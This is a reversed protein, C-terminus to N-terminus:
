SDFWIYRPAYPVVVTFQLTLELAGLLIMPLSIYRSSTVQCYFLFLCVLLFCWCHEAHEGRMCYIMPDCGPRTMGFFVMNITCVAERSPMTNLTSTQCHLRVRYLVLFLTSSDILVHVMFM